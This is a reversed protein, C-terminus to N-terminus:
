PGVEHLMRIDDIQSLRRVMEDACRPCVQPNDGGAGVAADGREVYSTANPRWLGGPAGDKFRVQGCLTGGDFEDNQGPLNVVHFLPPEEAARGDVLRGWGFVWYGGSM